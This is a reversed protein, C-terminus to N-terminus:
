HSNLFEQLLSHRLSRKFIHASRSLKFSADLSNWLTVTRYYFTKQGTATKFLPVNLKQSNRTKRKTIEERKTFQSSLYEPACGTMCKFAIIANRYYLESAVPLWKLDKLCPTIHDYKRAGTVIRCAFNQVAQLKQINNRSTNAWVNSCYYVKSFILTNLITMLTKNDFAHKVRNIQGLRSMCTSVTNIIHEDYSLNPDLTVGLDKAAHIPFIDKGLLSVSFDQLRPLMQRSGFVMLKTKTPNLLLHNKFCWNRVNLLDENMDSIASQKDKIQFSVHLKTDDVYCQSSCNRAASPLDNIYISFLLPGLISGQPVGSVLPLPESITSNIRVVQRRENLYSRFWQICSHSAGVDQLKMLLIKHSISDFAKSMDLLTIATLKKKDMASLIEDTTKIVSTETSHWAKNGSQNKTLSGNNTLYSSFQNHAVRECVKSLVPLFSIPRTVHCSM